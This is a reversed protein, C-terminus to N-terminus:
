HRLTKKCLKIQFFLFCFVCVLRATKHKATTLTKTGRLSSAKNETNDYAPGGGREMSHSLFVCLDLSARRVRVTWKEYYAPPLWEKNPRVSYTKGYPLCPCITMLWLVKCSLSLVNKEWLVLIWASIVNNKLFYLLQSIM